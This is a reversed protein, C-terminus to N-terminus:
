NRNNKHVLESQVDDFSKPGRTSQLLLFKGSMLNMTMRIEEKASYQRRTARRINRIAKEAGDKRKTMMTERTLLSSGFHERM